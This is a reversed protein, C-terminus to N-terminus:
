SLPGSYYAALSKTLTPLANCHTFLQVLLIKILNCMVFKIVDGNAYNCCAYKM